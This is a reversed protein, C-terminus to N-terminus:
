QSQAPGSIASLGPPATAELGHDFHFLALTQSDPEFRKRPTFTGTYRRVSSIRLEDITAEAPRFGTNMSGIQIPLPLQKIKLPSADTADKGSARCQDSALKGDIFCAMATKGGDDLKWQVALHYWQGKRWDRCSARITRAQYASNAIFFSLSGDALHSITLSDRNSLYPYEPRIPGLNFFTHELSGRPGSDRRVSDWAPKVWFEITGESLQIPTPTGASSLFAPAALADGDVGAAYLKEAPISARKPSGLRRVLCWVGERSTVTFTCVVGPVESRFLHTFPQKPRWMLQVLASSGLEKNGLPELGDTFEVTVRVDHLNRDCEIRLDGGIWTGSGDGTTQHRFQMPRLVLAVQPPPNVVAAMEFRLRAFKPVTRFGSGELFVIANSEEEGQPKTHVVNRCLQVRCSSGPKLKVGLDTAPIVMEVTWRDAQRQASAVATSNWDSSYKLVGDARPASRADFLTGKSDVIWHRFEGSSGEPAVLVEVSDCLRHEDRGSMTAAIEAPNPDSCEFAVCLANKDYVLRTRTELSELRLVRYDVFHEVPPAAAWAPENLVGDPTIPQATPVATVTRTRCTREFWKPMTHAAILAESREGLDKVEARLENVDIRSVCGPAASKRMHPSLLNRRPVRENLAQWHPAASDLAKRGETLHTEVAAADGRKIAGRAAMVHARHTALIHAGHTMLLMNMLYRQQFDNLVSSAQQLEWLKDLSAAARKTAEAQEAMTAVPDPIDTRRLVKDPFAIFTHSINEAFAPAMLPGAEDGFWFRCAREAFHHREPPPAGKTGLELWSQSNFEQAGPRNVNWACEVGLLGTLERWGSGGVNGFLIDKHSPYYLSKTWLPTTIFYPRWGKWFAYEFYLHFPRKGWAKRALDLHRREGERICVFIDSPLLTDLRALFQNLKLSTQRAVSRTAEGEGMSAAASKYVWEPDLYRGTYPYIVAVFKLDPVRRKVERHYIGFVAADAKAHDDGYTKRCLECRDNWLEPNQWGGGDTAHLYYGRYGSDALWAAARRARKEHYELRSWCFYRNHSRHRVVDRFDPNNQDRPYTGIATTDSAMSEIGRALGYDNVEKLAARIVTTKEPAEGPRINTSFWALNIKARLMWDFYGKQFAVWKRAMERAKDIEGKREAGLITYWDQRLPESFPTGNQRYKYDPWDRVEAPHLLIKGERRVILRRLTVAAYLTGLPDSGILFLRTADGTGRSHIVYGQEGLDEPTVKVGPQLGAMGPGSCPSVVIVKGPPLRVSVPSVPLAKGGLSVIRENIEEAAIRYKEGRNVLIRFGEVSLGDRSISIEKPAPVISFTDARASLGLVLVAGAVITLHGLRYLRNRSTDM